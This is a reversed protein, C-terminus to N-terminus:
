LQHSLEDMSDHFNMWTLLLPGPCLEFRRSTPSARLPNWCFSDKMEMIEWVCACRHQKVTKTPIHKINKNTFILVRFSSCPHAIGGMKVTLANNKFCDFNESISFLGCRLPVWFVVGRICASHELWQAIFIIKWRMIPPQSQHYLYKQKYVNHVHMCWGNEVTSFNNKLCDFCDFNESIVWGLHSDLGRSGSYMCLAPSRYPASVKEM